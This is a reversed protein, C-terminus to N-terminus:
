IALVYASDIEDSNTPKKLIIVNMNELNNIMQGVNDTIDFTTQPNAPQQLQWYAAAVPKNLSAARNTVRM